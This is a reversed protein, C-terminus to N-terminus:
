IFDNPHQFSMFKIDVQVFCVHKIFLNSELIYFFFTLHICVSIFFLIQYIVSKINFIDDMEDESIDEDEDKKNCVETTM